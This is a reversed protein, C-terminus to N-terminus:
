NTKSEIIGNISFQSKFLRTFVNNKELSCGSLEVYTKSEEPFTHLALHSECLLWICTYGYPKFYHETFNLIVYDSRHLFDKFTSKLSDPDSLEIWARFNYIHTIVKRMKILKKILESTLVRRGVSLLKSFNYDIFLFIVDNQIHM